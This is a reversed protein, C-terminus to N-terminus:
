LEHVVDRGGHQVQWSRLDCDGAHLVHLWCPMCLRGRLRQVGDSGVCQVQGSRLDCCCADGDDLWLPMRVRRQLEHVVGVGVVLVSGRWVSDCDREDVRSWLHVWRRLQQVLDRGCHQISGCSVAASVADSDDLWCSVRLRRQLRQV